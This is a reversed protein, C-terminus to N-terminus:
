RHPIWLGSRPRIELLRVADQLPPEAAELGVVALQLLELIRVRGHHRAEDVLELLLARPRPSEEQVDQGLSDGIPQGLAFRPDRIPVVVHGDEEAIEHPERPDRGLERRHHEHRLQVLEETAEVRDALRGPDLLDLRDAIRVEGNPPQDIAGRIAACGDSLGGELHPREDLCVSVLM